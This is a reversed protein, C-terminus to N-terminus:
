RPHPYFCEPFEDTMTIAFPTHHLKRLDINMTHSRRRHSDTRFPNNWFQEENRYRCKDKQGSHKYRVANSKNPRILHGLQVHLSSIKPHAEIMLQIWIHGVSLKQRQCAHSESQPVTYLLWATMCLRLRAKKDAGARTRLFSNFGIVFIYLM